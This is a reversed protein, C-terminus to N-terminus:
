FAPAASRLSGVKTRGKPSGQGGDEDAVKIAEIAAELATKGTAKGKADTMASDLARVSRWRLSTFDKRPRAGMIVECNELQAAWETMSELTLPSAPLKIDLRLEQALRNLTSFIFSQAEAIEKSSRSRKQGTDKDTTEPSASLYIDDMAKRGVTGKPGNVVEVGVRVYPSGKQTFGAKAGTLRFHYFGFRPLGGDEEVDAAPVNEAGSAYADYALDLAEGESSTLDDDYDREM